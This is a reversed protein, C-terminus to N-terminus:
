ARGEMNYSLDGEVAESWYLGIDKGIDEVFQVKGTHVTNSFFNPDEYPEYQIGCHARAHMRVVRTM